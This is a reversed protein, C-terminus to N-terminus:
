ANLSGNLMEQATSEKIKISIALVVADMKTVNFDFYVVQRDLKAVYAYAISHVPTGWTSVGNGSAVTLLGVGKTGLPFAM